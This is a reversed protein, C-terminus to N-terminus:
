HINRPDKRQAPRGIRRHMPRYPIGASKENGTHKRAEQWINGMICGLIRFAGVTALDM